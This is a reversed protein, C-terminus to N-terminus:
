KQASLVSDFFDEAMAADVATKNGDNIKSYTTYGFTDVEKSFGKVLKGNQFEGFYMAEKTNHLEGYGNRTGNAFGGFYLEGSAEKSLSIGNSLNGNSFTGLLYTGNAFKLWGIGNRKSNAYEGTYDSSDIKLVARGDLFTGAKFNGEYVNGNEVLLGKGNPKGKKKEGSYFKSDKEFKRSEFKAALEKDM